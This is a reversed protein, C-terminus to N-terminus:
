IFPGVMGGKWHVFLWPQKKAIGAIFQSARTKSRNLTRYKRRAWDVLTLNFHRLVKRMESGHYAGYYNIWGKLIPNYWEAIEGLNLDNRLRVKEKRIRARMSKKANESVAPSFGM